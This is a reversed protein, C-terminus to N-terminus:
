PMNEDHEALLQEKIRMLEQIQEKKVPFTLKLKGLTAEIIQSVALRAFWKRDAPIIYWPANETSTEKIATAYAKMYEKWLAREKLDGIAFKWNKSSDTIRSIFREKQEDKSLHLFFKLIVTGNDTLQKEFNRIHEYRKKWFDQDLQKVEEYGPLNEKLVYEPHVKCVIVNEYHSRNHIGIIGKEPVVNAHRWLFHNQYENETPAKFSHVECGQPNLGSMVHSITSDKGAADMAQFIILIAHKGSAYIKKQFEILELKVKELEKKATAKDLDGNYTTDFKNLSFKNNPKVLYRKIIASM